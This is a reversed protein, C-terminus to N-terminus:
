RPLTTPDDGFLPTVNTAQIPAEPDAYIMSMTHIRSLLPTWIISCLGILPFVLWNDSALCLFDWGQWYGLGACGVGWWFGTCAPCAMFEELAPPYREWLFHTIKAQIGLYYLATTIL